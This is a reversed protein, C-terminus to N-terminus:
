KYVVTHCSTDNKITKMQLTAGLPSKETPGSLSACRPWNRPYDYTHDKTLKGPNKIFRVGPGRVVTSHPHDVYNATYQDINLLWYKSRYVIVTDQNIQTYRNSPVARYNINNKARSDKSTAHITNICYM